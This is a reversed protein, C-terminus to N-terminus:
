SEGCGLFAYAQVSEDAVAEGVALCDVSDVSFRFVSRAFTGGEVKGVQHAFMLEASCM